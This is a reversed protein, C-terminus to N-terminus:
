NVGQNPRAHLPKNISLLFSLNGVEEDVLIEDMIHPPRKLIEKLFALVSFVRSEDPFYSRM